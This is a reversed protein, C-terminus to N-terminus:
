RTEEETFISELNEAQVNLDQASFATRQSHEKHTESLSPQLLEPGSRVTGKDEPHSTKCMNANRDIILISMSM